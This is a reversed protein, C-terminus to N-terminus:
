RPLFEKHLIDVVETFSKDSCLWLVKAIEGFTSDDEVMRFMKSYQENTGHTFLQYKNCVEYMEWFDWIRNGTFEKNPM